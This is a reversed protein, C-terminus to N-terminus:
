PKEMLAVDLPFPWAQGENKNPHEQPYFDESTPMDTDLQSHNQSNFDVLAKAVESSLSISDEDSIVELDDEEDESIESFM